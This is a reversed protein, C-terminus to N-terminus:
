KPEVPTVLSLPSLEITAGAPAVPASSAMSPSGIARLVQGGVLAVVSLLALVQPASHGLLAVLAGQFASDTALAGVGVLTSLIAAVDLKHM